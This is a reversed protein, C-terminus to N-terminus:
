SGARTQEMTQRENDKAQKLADADAKARAEAESMEHAADGGGSFADILYNIAETLAWIAVGVGTSILLGRIAVRLTTAGITAGTFAPESCM